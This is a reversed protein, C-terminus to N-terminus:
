AHNHERVYKERMLDAACRRRPVRRSTCSEYLRYARAGDSDQTLSYKELLRRERRRDEKSSRGTGPLPALRSM